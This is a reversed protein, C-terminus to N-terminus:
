STKSKKRNRIVKKITSELEAEEGTAIEYVCRAFEAFPGEPTSSADGARYQEFVEFCQDVLIYKPNDLTVIRSDSSSPPGLKEIQKTLADSFRNLTDVFPNIKFPPKIQYCVFRATRQSMSALKAILKNSLKKLEIAERRIDSIRTKDAQLLFSYTIVIEFIQSDVKNKSVNTGINLLKLLYPLQGGLREQIQGKFKRIQM